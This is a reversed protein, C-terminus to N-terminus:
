VSDILGNTKEASPVMPLRQPAKPTKVLRAVNTGITGERALFGFLSRVAALKRRISVVSLEQDYLSSLWKRLDLATVTAPVSFHEAFQRLDSEYNRLTHPSANELRLSVLYRDIAETLQSM